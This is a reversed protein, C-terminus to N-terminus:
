RTTHVSRRKYYKSSLIQFTNTNKKAMFYIVLRRFYTCQQQVKYFVYFGIVQFKTYVKAIAVMTLRNAQHKLVSTKYNQNYSIIFYFISM